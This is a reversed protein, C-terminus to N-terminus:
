SYITYHDNINSEIDSPAHTSTDPYIIFEQTTFMPFISTNFYGFKMNASQFSLNVDIYLLYKSGLDTYLSGRTTLTYAAGNLRASNITSNNNVVTSTSGSQAVILYDNGSDSGVMIADSTVAGVSYMKYNSSTDLPLNMGKGNGATVIPLSNDGLLVGTSADYIKPQQSTTAQTADIGNSQDYWVKVFGNTGSCFTSLTSTDLVGNSFGIDQEANDSARRVRIAPGDYYSYVLRLSYAAAAGVYSFSSQDLAGEYYGGPPPSPSTAINLSVKVDSLFICDGSNLGSARGIFFLYTAKDINFNHTLNVWQDYQVESVSLIETSGTNKYVSLKEFNSGSPVYYWFDIEYSGPGLPVATNRSLFGLDVNNFYRYVDSRGEHDVVSGSVSTNFFLDTTFDSEYIYDSPPAAGVIGVPSGGSINAGLGLM